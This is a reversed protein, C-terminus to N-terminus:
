MKSLGVGLMLSILGIAYFALVIITVIGFYRFIIKLNQFSGNLYEQDNGALATKMKTAFRYLFLCPFFYIIVAIIAYAMVMFSLAGGSVTGAEAGLNNAFRSFFSGAFLGFLAILGCMIFGIIALFRAWRAAEALHTKASQDISLGFLSTGQNEEM